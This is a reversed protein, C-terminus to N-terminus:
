GDQWERCKDNCLHGARTIEADAYAQAEQLSPLDARITNGPAGVHFVGAGYTGGPLAFVVGMVHQDHYRSWARFPEYM